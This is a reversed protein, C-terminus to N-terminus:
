NPASAGDIWVQPHERGALREIVDAPAVSGEGGLPARRGKGKLLLLRAGSLVVVANSIGDLEIQRPDAIQRLDANLALRMRPVRLGGSTKFTALAIRVPHDAHQESYDVPGGAPRSAEPVEARAGAQGLALLLGGDETTGLRLEQRAPAKPTRQRDLQAPNLVLVQKPLRDGIVTEAERHERDVIIVNRRQDRRVFLKPAIESVTSAPVQSLHRSYALRIIERWPRGPTTETTPGLRDELTRHRYADPAARAQARRERRASKRKQKADREPLAAQHGQDELQRLEGVIRELAAASSRISPERVVQRAKEVAGPFRLDLYTLLNAATGSITAVRPDLPDVLAPAFAAPPSGQPPKLTPIGFIVEHQPPSHKARSAAAKALRGLMKPLGNKPVGGSTDVLVVPADPDAELAHQLIMAPRLHQYPNQREGQKSRFDGTSPLEIIQALALREKAKKRKAADHRSRKAADHEAVAAHVERATGPRAIVSVRMGRSWAANFARVFGHPEFHRADITVVPRAGQAPAGSEFAYVVPRGSLLVVCLPLTLSCISRSFLM